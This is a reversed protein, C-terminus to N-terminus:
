RRRRFSPRALLSRWCASGSKSPSRCRCLDCRLRADLLPVLVLVSLLSRGFLGPHKVLYGFEFRAASLGVSFMLLPVALRALSGVVDHLLETM